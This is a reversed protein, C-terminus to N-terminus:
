THSVDLTAATTKTEQVTSGVRLRGGPEAVGDGRGGGPAAGDSREAEDHRPEARLIQNRQLFITPNRAAEDAHLLNLGFTHSATTHLVASAFSVHAASAKRVDCLRLVRDARHPSM